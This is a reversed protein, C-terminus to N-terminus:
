ARGSWTTRSPISNGACGRHVRGELGQSVCKGRFQCQLGPTFLWSQLPPVSVTAAAELRLDIVRALSRLVKTENVRALPTSRSGDSKKWYPQWPTELKRAGKAKQLRRVCKSQEQEAYWAAEMPGATPVGDGQESTPQWGDPTTKQARGERYSVCQM